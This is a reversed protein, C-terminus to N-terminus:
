KEIIELCRRGAAEAQEPTLSGLPARVRPSIPVGQSHLIAKIVSFIDGFKKMEGILEVSRAQLERAQCLDGSEFAEIIRLYLPAAINYTSGVGGRAGAALASLLMEDRGWLLDYRGKDLRLCELYDDLAEFTFKVGAFNPIREAALRIFPAIRLDVGSKSPMHYFYFPMNPAAAVIAACWDVLGEPVTPKFFDPAICAIADAGIKQAHRALRRADEICNHGVHVFLKFQAPITRRWEEAIAEREKITLSMGEGTTGNVFGGVVGQTALHAALSGVASLDIKGDGTFGTPPAAVLGRTKDIRM